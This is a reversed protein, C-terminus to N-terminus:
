ESGISRNAYIRMALSLMSQMKFDQVRCSSQLRKASLNLGSEIASLSGNSGHQRYRSNIYHNAAIHAYYLFGSHCPIARRIVPNLDRNIGVILIKELAKLGFKDCGEAVFRMM